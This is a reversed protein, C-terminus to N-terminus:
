DTSRSNRYERRALFTDPLHHIPHYLFCLRPLSVFTKFLLRKAHSSVMVISKDLWAKQESAAPFCPTAQPSKSVIANFTKCCAWLVYIAEPKGAIKGRWRCTLTISLLTNSSRWPLLLHVFVIRRVNNVPEILEFFFARVGLYAWDLLFGSPVMVM